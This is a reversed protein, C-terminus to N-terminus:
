NESPREAGDIILIEVPGKQSELKLGLQEQIATFLSPGSDPPPANDSGPGEKGGDGPGRFMQNQREDLAWKLTFDYNGQLGTKDLVIRGLEPQNSLTEALLTLPAATGTLQGPRMFLGRGKLIPGNPPGKRFDQPEKANAPRLEDTSAQQIKPGNKAVVLAYVPLEKTERHLTLKFRDALLAQLMRKSRDQALKRQEESLKWPEAISSDDAKAEIDFKESNLWGPGGSIQSDTVGYALHILMKLSINAATFRGGPSNMIRGGREGSKNLKVSAVAFEPSPTSPAPSQARSPPANLLGFVIPGAVAAIGASALLLKKGFALKDTLRQTMIRVIRKKLDSGTVGSMCALPSELYFQCTRLIGEAYSQPESGLRLVEEDCAHEREEVLRAGLWWVLPHFWFVAEVLMHIAAALNDRRRVHCLEHAIIAELQPGALLDGIGAPLFLVPRFIGFVGPELCAGSSVLEIKRRRAAASELRRLAEFERGERVPLAARLTVATRRWCASWRLLVVACGGLWLLLVIEPWINTHSAVIAQASAAHPQAEVFPRSVQEMVVSFGSPAIERATSWGLHSGTAILLSFPILFKVSAALWLGYRAQAHNQRFLLALLGAVAAFLTSQWLHNALPSLSEIQMMM